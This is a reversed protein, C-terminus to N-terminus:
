VVNTGDERVHVVDRHSIWGHPYWFGWNRIKPGTSFLTMTYPVGELLDLRHAETAGRFIIDGVRREYRRNNGSHWQVGPFHDMFEIYGGSLINSMNDWPHDHMPREPDNRVQIHLYVNGYDNHPIVHWRYLYPVGDPAIVLDPKRMKRLICEVRVYDESSLMHFPKM